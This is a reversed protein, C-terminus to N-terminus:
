DLVEVWKKNCIECVVVLRIGMDDDFDPDIVEIVKRNQECCVDQEGVIKGKYEGM